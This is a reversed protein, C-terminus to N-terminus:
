EDGSGGEQGERDVLSLRPREAAMVYAWGFPEEKQKTANFEYCAEIASRRSDHISTTESAEHDYVEYRGEYGDRDVVLTLQVGVLKELSTFADIPFGDDGGNALDAPLPWDPLSPDSPAAFFLLGNHPTMTAAESPIWLASNPATATM